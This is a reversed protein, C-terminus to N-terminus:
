PEVAAPSCEFGTCHARKLAAKTRADIILGSGGTGPYTLVSHGRLLALSFVPKVVHDGHWITRKGLANVPKPFHLVWYARVEVGHFVRGPLWQLVDSKTAASDLVERMNQSCFRGGIDAALYDPFDGEVLDLIPEKWSEIPGNDPLFLLDDSRSRGIGLDSEKFFVRYYNM